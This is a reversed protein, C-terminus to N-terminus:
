STFGHSAIWVRLAAFTIAGVHTAVPKSGHFLILTPVSKIGYDQALKPQKEIDVKVVPFTAALSDLVPAVRKCPACWTAWFDVLVPGPNRLVLGPFTDADELNILM